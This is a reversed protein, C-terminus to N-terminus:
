LLRKTLQSILGTRTELLRTWYLICTITFLARVIPIGVITVFGQQVVRQYIEIASTLQSSLPPVFFFANGDATFYSPFAAVVILIASLHLVILYTSNRLNIARDLVLFPILWVFYHPVWSAFAFYGLLTLLLADVISDRTRPWREALVVYTLVLSIAAVGIQKGTSTALVFDDFSQTFPGYSLLQAGPNYGGAIVWAFYTAVGLLGSAVVVWSFRSRGGVMPFIPLLVIPFLKLAMAAANALAGKVLHKPRQLFLISLLFLVVPLLDIAGAMENMVLVYPNLFWLFFAFRARKANTSNRLTIAYILSGALIDLILLPLKLMFVLLYLGTTAHLFQATWLTLHTSIQPHDFPLLYWIQLISTALLQYPTLFKTQYTIQALFDTSLPTVTM